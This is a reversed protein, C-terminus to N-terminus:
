RRRPQRQGRAHGPIDHDARVADLALLPVGGPHTWNASSGWRWEGGRRAASVPCDKETGGDQHVGLPQNQDDDGLPAVTV